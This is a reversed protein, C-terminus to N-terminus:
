GTKRRFSRRGQGAVEPGHVSGENRAVDSSRRAAANKRELAERFKEKAATPVEPKDTM